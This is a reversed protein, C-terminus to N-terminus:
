SWATDTAPSSSHHRNRPPTLGMVEGQEATFAVPGDDPTFQVRWPFNPAVGGVWDARHYRVTGGSESLGQPV